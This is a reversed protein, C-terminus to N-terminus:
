WESSCSVSTLPKGRKQKLGLGQGGRDINEKDKKGTHTAPLNLLM